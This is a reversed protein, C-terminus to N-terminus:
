EKQMEEIIEKCKLLPKAIPDKALKALSEKNNRLFDYMFSAKRKQMESVIETEDFGVFYKILDSKICSNFLDNELDKKSLYMKYLELDEAILLASKSNIEEPIENTFGKLNNENESLIKETDTDKQFHERYIDICRQIGAFRYEVKKPIKFIDNDTRLVWDINLGNLIKIFTSFGVGDVMVISINLRDLDIKLQRSLTKYFLEESVGEVLFVVDSFFSEAPIISLRYGFDKFAAGIIESCGNSAAKTEGKKNFLRVLSNPSFESAIQPSHSTLIVQGKISSNLYDALKRQQHPHLHAEPEEICFITFEKLSDKTLENRSAWLALYIQNLRGDGGILVRQENSKSAISVSNIFNDVNSSSVDFVIKQKTHHLSLKSLEDNITDTASSIFNLKPIKEDVYKLQSQIEFYLKEDQTVEEEERNEKAIQFLYGKERNIYNHLDRRSSIYKLNLVKRYYRDEIEELLDTTPGAFLQYTKVKTTKDRFGKYAIILKNDDGIRGKLRSVVCDETVESFHLEINFTNTEEFAYFDTDKPEIDYDSLSRDLLLRIAWLLNTKGVDNAGIILSKKALNIKAKKFNRFGQLKISSLIM